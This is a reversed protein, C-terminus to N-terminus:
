PLLSSLSLCLSLIQVAVVVVFFLDFKVIKFRFYWDVPLWVFQKYKIDRSFRNLLYRRKILDIAVIFGASEGGFNM